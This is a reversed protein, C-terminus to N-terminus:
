ADVQIRISEEMTRAVLQDSLNRELRELDAAKTSTAPNKAVLSQCCDTYAQNSIAYTGIKEALAIIEKKDYTLLPRLVPLTVASGISGLNSLTQSSVQALNDGTGLAEADEKAAVAEAVRLMFRRFLPLAYREPVHLAELVFFNYPVLYLTGSQTYPKLQRVLHQIKETRRVADDKDKFPHFHLYVNRVGRKALLWSAVPSDIGGSLLTVVTGTCGVPLGGPGTKKDAYLIAKDKLIEVSLVTKAGKVGMQIGKEELALALQQAIQISTLGHTKDSRSVEVKVPMECGKLAEGAGPILDDIDSGLSEHAQAFSAVGFVKGVAKMATSEAGPGGPVEMLFRHADLRIQSSPVASQLNRRLQNQFMPRNKGKTFIEGYHILIMPFGEKKTQNDNIGSGTKKRSPRTPKNSDAM